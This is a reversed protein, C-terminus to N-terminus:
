NTDGHRSLWHCSKEFWVSFEEIPQEQHLWFPSTDLLQDESLSATTMGKAFLCQQNSNPEWSHEIARLEEALLSPLSYGGTNFQNEHVNSQFLNLRSLPKFWDKGQYVPHWGLISRAQQLITNSLLLAGSRIVLIHFPKRCEQQAHQVMDAINKQWISLTAQEIKGTSDGTGYLDFQLTLWGQKALAHSLHSILHRSANMEELLPPIVILSAKAQKPHGTACVAIQAEGSPLYYIRRETSCM